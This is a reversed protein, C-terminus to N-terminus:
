RIEAILQCIQFGKSYFMKEFETAGQKPFPIESYLDHTEKIINFSPHEKIIACTKDFCSKHDTKYSFFGGSRVLKSITDIYDPRLIRNKAWRELEWPDPFNIYFGALSKEAFIDAISNADARIALINNLKLHDGKKAINFVRKYRLEFGIYLQNQNEQALEVLHGGSGCCVECIVDNFKSCKEKVQYIQEPTLVNKEASILYDPKTEILNIYPNIWKREKDM